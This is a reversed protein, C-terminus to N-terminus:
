RVAAFAEDLLEVFDSSGASEGWRSAAVDLASIAAAVMAEVKIDDASAGLRPAFVEGIQARWQTQRELQHGRLSPSESTLRVRALATAPDAVYDEVASHFGHHLATWGPEEAPRAAVAVAIRHGTTEQAVYVAEEKSAFYRFFTARSIGAAAAAEAATTEEFGREAFLNFAIEAVRVRVTERVEARLDPAKELEQKGAAM